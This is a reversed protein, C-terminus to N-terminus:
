KKEDRYMDHCDKCPLADVLLETIEGIDAGRDAAKAMADAHEVFKAMKAQFDPYKAWVDPKAEGGVVKADFSHQALKATLALADAHARLNDPPIQTSVIMGIAATQEQLTKMIHERYDIVDKDDAQAAMGFTVAGAIVLGGILKMMRAM